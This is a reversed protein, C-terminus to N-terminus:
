AVSMNPHGGARAARESSGRREKQQATLKGLMVNAAESACPMM